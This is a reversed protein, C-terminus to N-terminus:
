AHGSTSQIKDCIDFLVYEPESSKMQALRRLELTQLFLVSLCVSVNFFSLRVCPSDSLRVKYVLM